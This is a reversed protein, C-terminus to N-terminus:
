KFACMVNDCCNGLFGNAFSGKGSKRKAGDADRSAAAAAKGDDATLLAFLPLPPIADIELFDAGSVGIAASGEGSGSQSIDALSRRKGQILCKM